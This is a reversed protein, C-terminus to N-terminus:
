DEHLQRLELMRQNLDKTRLLVKGDSQLWLEQELRDEREVTERELVLWPIKTSPDHINVECMQAALADSILECPLMIRIPSQLDQKNGAKFVEALVSVHSGLLECLNDCENLDDSLNVVGEVTWKAIENSKHAQDVDGVQLEDCASELAKTMWQWLEDNEMKITQVLGAPEEGAGELKVKGKAKSAQRGGRKRKPPAAETGSDEDVVEMVPGPPVRATRGQMSMSPETAGHPAAPNKLTTANCAM